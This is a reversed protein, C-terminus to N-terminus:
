SVYFTERNDGRISRSFKHTEYASGINTVHKTCANWGRSYQEMSTSRMQNSRVRLEASIWRLVGQVNIGSSASVSEIPKSGLDDKPTPSSTCSLKKFEAKDSRPIENEAHTLRTHQM